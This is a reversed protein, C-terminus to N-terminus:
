SDKPIDTTEHPQACDAGRDESRRDHDVALMRVLQRDVLVRAAPSLRARARTLDIIAAQADDIEASWGLGSVLQMDLVPIAAKM